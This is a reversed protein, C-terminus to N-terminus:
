VSYLFLARRVIYLVVSEDEERKKGGYVLYVLVVGRKRTVEAERQHIILIVIYSIPEHTHRANIKLTALTM